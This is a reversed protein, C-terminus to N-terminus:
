APSDDPRQELEAVRETADTVEDGDAAVTRHFWEIADATRGAALLTDAYAYRLRAVWPERSSSRLPASELTRLAAEM